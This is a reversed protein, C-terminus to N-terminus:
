VERLKEKVEVFEPNNKISHATQIIQAPDGTEKALWASFLPLSTSTATALGASHVDILNKSLSSSFHEVIHKAYDIGYNCSTSIYSQQYAQQLFFRIWVSM